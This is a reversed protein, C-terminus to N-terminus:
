CIKEKQWRIVENWPSLTLDYKKWYYKLEDTPWDAYLDDWTAVQMHPQLSKEEIDEDAPQYRYDVSLRVRDGLQNPLSKHVNTSIFTLVDGVRYNEEIWPLGVDCLIAELGGAGEAQSVSLVGLRHSGPMVALGGLERPIDGLPIWATWVNQTGQIHIFDQHVPTPRNSPCPVMLRAINRPHPLVPRGFLTTYIRLMQPHHPLAHFIQLKQLDYYAERTVGTGGWSEMDRVNEQDVWGEMIDRDTRVMKHKVLIGMLQRRVELVDEAPLLGRFFLYGDRDAQARLEEPRELLPTADEFGVIITPEQKTTSTSM